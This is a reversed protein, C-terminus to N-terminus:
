LGFVFLMTQHRMERLEPTNVLTSKAVRSLGTLVAVYQKGGAEFTMPPANVGTGVNVEWLQELSTDDYAAFSGDILGTFLLGGATTLAASFNPYAKHIKKKIEGTLPDVVVIDSENRETYKSAGGAIIGNANRGADPDLTSQNCSSMSPIYLLKTRRSYSASWYNNGGLLAPCLKKTRDTPTMAQQGSYVQIDKTPDYDVPKGTKQDIGKTWTVADVYQKALLTQGNSREMAYFFGNRASHVILKRVQGAVEGDILIHTGAEDYDWMDGPTYQFYWNMKGSDPDWSILSNTYLNDGPRGYPNFMPVPNGTGWLVQNSDVDYSGTVWMAGGGTQWANNNDKWTESGPEGPAPVTYKRWLLKGTAADLAVIFDRVGRDGGSAGIVIKDKVPLPAATLTLDPQGDGMNAEWAVKGTEKDTAIVRAPYNAVSIVFNGWLAAGRNVAQLKEQGPDMRWVIRGMRGSRGDIKYVVSWNDVVYLYGDEALPTSLLNENASTGGIAVAYALKLSKVNSKNIKDLPSYRQADYTRHNMLWNQPERDANVLRQPTVEAALAPSAAIVVGALMSTTRRNM